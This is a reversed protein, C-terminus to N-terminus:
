SCAPQHRIVVLNQTDPTVRIGIRELTGISTQGPLIVRIDVFVWASFIAEFVNAPGVLDQTVRLGTLAVVLEPLGTETAAAHRVHSVHPSERIEEFGEEAAEATTTAHATATLAAAARALAIIEAEFEGDAETFGHEARLLLHLEPV